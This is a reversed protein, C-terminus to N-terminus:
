SEPGEPRERIWGPPINARRAEEEFDELAKRSAALDAKAQELEEALKTLDAETKQGRESDVPKDAARLTDIRYQVGEVKNEALVVATRRENARAQWSAEDGADRADPAQGEQGGETRAREGEGTWEGGSRRPSPSAEPPPTAGAKPLAKSSGPQGHGSPPSPVPSPSPPHYRALDEDTFVRKPSRKEQATTNVQVLALHAFTLVVPVLLSSRM